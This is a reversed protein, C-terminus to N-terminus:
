ACYSAQIHLTASWPRSMQKLAPLKLVNFKKGFVEAGEMSEICTVEGGTMIPLFPHWSLSDYMCYTPIVNRGPINISFYLSSNIQYAANRYWSTPSMPQLHVSNMSKGINRPLNLDNPRLKKYM